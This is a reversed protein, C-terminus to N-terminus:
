ITSPRWHTPIGFLSALFAAMLTAIAFLIVMAPIAAIAWKVIFVVMSGFSMHIDTVIVRLPKDAENM